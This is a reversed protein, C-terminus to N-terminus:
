CETYISCGSKGSKKRAYLARDARGVIKEYDDGDCKFTIGASLTYDIKVDGTKATGMLGNIRKKIFEADAFTVNNMWIIFEDGGFRGAFDSGRFSSGIKEAVCRLVGDGASHGFTDNINKFDDIDLFILAGGVSKDALKGKIFEEIARRNSIRTLADSNAWEKLESREKNRLKIYDNFVNALYRLESTGCPRIYENKVIAEIYGMLVLTVKKYLVIAMILSLANCIGAVCHLITIYDKVGRTVTILDNEAASIVVKEFDDIKKYIARKSENYEKGHIMKRALEIKESASLADERESLSYDKVQEPMKWLTGTAAGILAFAHTERMALDDSLKLAEVLSSCDVNYKKAKEIESERMNGDIIGYYKLVPKMALTDIYDNACLTLEDSENQLARAADNCAVMAEQITVAKTYKHQLIDYTGLVVISLVLVIMFYLLNITRTSIGKKGTNRM